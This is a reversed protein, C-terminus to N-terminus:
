PVFRFFLLIFALLSPFASLRNGKSANLLLSLACGIGVCILVAALAFWKHRRVLKKFKIFRSSDSSDNVEVADVVRLDPTEEKSPAVSFSETAPTASYKVANVEVMGSLRMEQANKKQPKM